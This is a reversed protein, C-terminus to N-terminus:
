GVFTVILDEGEVDKASFINQGVWKEHRIMVPDYEAILGCGHGNLKIWVKDSGDYKFRAGLALSDFPMTIDSCMVQTNSRVADGKTSKGDSIGKRRWDIMEDMM